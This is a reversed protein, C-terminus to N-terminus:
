ITTIHHHHGDGALLALLGLLAQQSWHTCQSPQPPSPRMLVPTLSFIRQLDTHVRVIVARESVHVM